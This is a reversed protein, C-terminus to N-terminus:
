RLSQEYAEITDEVDSETHAYSVFQSEFQSPPLFVGRDRMRHWLIRRWRETDCAQVDSYRRPAVGDDTFFVKFVSGVGGVSYEPRNDVVVDRLGERLRRGLDDVYDLVNEREVYRLVSLGAAVTLPNGNFTGAQYVDGAPAVERMVERRGGFVGIPFGAGGVKGLTTLDPTVGYHEQAGGLGLRFGTIVEDFVLLAGHEETIRRVEDLYGEEPEIPGCNGMVPEVLVCAVDEDVAQEMAEVDNFPAQRTHRTFSRPVGDSDPTGHTSAGSGAEVLVGDHAGHFGGTVKVIEDRGTYGRATRVASMTAETGSNVLRLMEISPVHGAVFEAYEVELRTPAGYLVGEDVQREVEERVEPPLGHGLLLPGYGMCYDLYREGDEDFVYAGDGREVFFPTPEVSRVPSSVGGPMLQMARDFLRRSEPSDRM